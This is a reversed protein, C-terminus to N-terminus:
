ILIPVSTYDVIHLENTQEGRSSLIEESATTPFHRLLFSSKVKVMNICDAILELNNTQQNAASM